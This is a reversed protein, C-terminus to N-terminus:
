RYKIVCRTEASCTLPSIFSLAEVSKGTESELTGTWRNMGPWEVMLLMGSLTANNRFVKSYYIKSNYCFYNVELM